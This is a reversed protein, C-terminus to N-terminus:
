TLEVGLLLSSIMAELYLSVHEVSQALWIGWPPKKFFFKHMLKNIQFLHKTSTLLASKIEPFGMKGKLLYCSSLEMKARSNYASFSTLSTPLM